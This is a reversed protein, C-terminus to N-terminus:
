HEVEEHETETDADADDWEPHTPRPNPPPRDLWRAAPVLWPQLLDLIQDCIRPDVRLAQFVALQKAHAHVIRLQAKTVASTHRDVDQDDALAKDARERRRYCKFCETTTAM